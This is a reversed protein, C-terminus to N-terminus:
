GASARHEYLWQMAMHGVVLQLDESIQMDDVPVHIPCNALDKAKGGAYGLIAFSKVKSDKCWELAKVINASNGSGSLAIVLDGPNALVALQRVYISDYGEDNALCTLVATNASLANVRLAHGFQKSVGYIMDNAIHNANAASGGNGFLFVQRKDQWARLLDQALEEVPGLPILNLAQQLRLVYSKAGSLFPSPATTLLSKVKPDAGQVVQPRANM